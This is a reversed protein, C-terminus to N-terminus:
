IRITKVDPAKKSPEKPTPTKKKDPAKDSPISREEERRLREEPLLLDEEANKEGDDVPFDPWPQANPQLPMDRFFREFLRDFHRHDPSSFLDKDFPEFRFYKHMERTINGWSTDIRFYFFGSSDPLVRLHGDKAFTSDELLREWFRRQQKWIDWPDHTQTCAWGPLMLSALTILALLFPHYCRVSIKGMTITNKTFTQTCGPLSVILVKKSTHASILEGISQAPRSSNQWLRRFFIKYPYAVNKPLTKSAFYDGM